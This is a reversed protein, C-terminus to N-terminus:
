RLGSYALLKHFDWMHIQHFNMQHVSHKENRVFLHIFLSPSFPGDQGPLSDSIEIAKPVCRCLFMWHLTM